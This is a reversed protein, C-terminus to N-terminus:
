RSPRVMGARPLVVLAIPVWALPAYATVTGILVLLPPWSPPSCAAASRAGSSRTSTCRSGRAPTM